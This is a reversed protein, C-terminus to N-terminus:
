MIRGILNKLKNKLNLYLKWMTVKKRKSSWDPQEKRNELETVREEAIFISRKFGDTSNQKMWEIKQKYFKWKIIKM